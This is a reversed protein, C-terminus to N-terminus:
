LKQRIDREHVEAERIDAADVRHDCNPCLKMFRGDHNQRRIFAIVFHPAGQSCASAGEQELGHRSAVQEGGEALDVGPFLVNWCFHRRTERLMDTLIAQALTFYFHKLQHTHSSAIAINALAEVDGRLGYLSVHLVDHLLKASTIARLCHRDSYPASDDLQLHQPANCSSGFEPRR